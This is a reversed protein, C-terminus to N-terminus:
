IEAGGVGDESGIAQRHMFRITWADTPRELAKLVSIRPESQNRQNCIREAWSAWGHQFSTTKIQRLLETKRQTGEDADEASTDSCASWM